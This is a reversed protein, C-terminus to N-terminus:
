WNLGGVCISPWRGACRIGYTKKRAEIIRSHNHGLAAAGVGDAFDLIKKGDQDYYYVGQARKILIKNFRLIKYYHVLAPNVNETYIKEIAKLDLKDIQDVSILEYKINTM